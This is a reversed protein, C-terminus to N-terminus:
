PRSYSNIFGISLKMVVSQDLNQGELNLEQIIIPIQVFKDGGRVEDKSIKFQLQIDLICM